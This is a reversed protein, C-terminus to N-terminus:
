RSAAELLSYLGLEGPELEVQGVKGGGLPVKWYMQSCVIVHGGTSHLQVIVGLVLVAFVAGPVVISLVFKCAVYPNCM